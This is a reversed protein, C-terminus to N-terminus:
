SPYQRYIAMVYELCKVAAFPFSSGKETSLILTVSIDASFPMKYKGSIPKLPFSMCYQGLKSKHADTSSFLIFKVM